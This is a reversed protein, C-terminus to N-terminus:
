GKVTNRRAHKVLDFIRQAPIVREQGIDDWDSGPRYGGRRVTGLRLIEKIRDHEEKSTVLIVVYEHEPGLQLSQQIPDSPAEVEGGALAATIIDSADYGTFEIQYGQEKLWYLDDSLQEEDVEARLTSGRDAILDALEAADTAYDQCDVPVSAMDLFKAAEFRCHGRVIMGSRTSVTIPVRWGHEKIMGAVERIQRLPHKNFNKPNPKLRGIPVLEGFECFIKIDGM